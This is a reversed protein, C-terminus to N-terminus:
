DFNLKKRAPSVVPNRVQSHTLTSPRVKRPAPPPALLQQVTTEAVHANPTTAVRSAGELIDKPTTPTDMQPTGVCFVVSIILSYFCNKDTKIKKLL